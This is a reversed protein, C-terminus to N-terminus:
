YAEFHPSLSRYTGTPTSRQHGWSGGLEGEKANRIGEGEKGERGMRARVAEWTRDLLLSAHSSELRLYGAIVRTQYKCM